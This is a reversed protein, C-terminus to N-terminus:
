HFEVCGTNAACQFARCWDMYKQRDWDDVRPDSAFKEGYDEFDKALKACTKPGICGENDAFNILEYFPGDCPSTSWFYEADKDHIVQALLNRWHNYGGYSGARFGGRQGSVEMYEGEIGDLRSEFGEVTYWHIYREYEDEVQERTCDAPTITEYYSIDLGM